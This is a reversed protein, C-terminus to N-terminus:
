RGIVKRVIKEIAEADRIVQADRRALTWALRSVIAETIWLNASIGQQEAEQQVYEWTRDSVRITRSRLPM